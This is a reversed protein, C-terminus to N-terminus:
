IPPGSHSAQLQYGSILEARAQESRYAISSLSLLTSATTRGENLRSSLTFAYPLGLDHARVCRADQRGVVIM